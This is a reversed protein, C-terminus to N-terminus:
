AMERIYEIVNSLEGANFDPKMPPELSPLEGQFHVLVAKMGVGHAGAIDHKPSDGVMVANEPSVGTESLMKMFIEPHPKRVGVGASSYVPSLFPRLGFDDVMRQILRDCTANSILSMRLGMDNLTELVQLTDPFRQYGEIEPEFFIDIARTVVDEDIDDYGARALVAKLTEDATIERMSAEAQVFGAERAATWERYLLERDISIGQSELFAHMKLVGERNAKLFDGAYHLLTEGLDFIVLKINSM